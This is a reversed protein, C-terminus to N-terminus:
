YTRFTSVALTQPPPHASGQGCILLEAASRVQEWLGLGAPADLVAGDLVACSSVSTPLIERKKRCVTGGCAKDASHTSSSATSLSGHKDGGLDCHQDGGLDCVAAGCAADAGSHRVESQLAQQEAVGALKDEAKRLQERLGSLEEWLSEADLSVGEQTLPLPSQSAVSLERTVEDALSAQEFLSARAQKTQLAPARVTSARRMMAASQRQLQQEINLSQTHLEERADLLQQKASSHEAAAAQLREKYEYLEQKLRRAEAESDIYATKLEDLRHQFEAELEDRTSDVADQWTKQHSLDTNEAEVMSQRRSAILTKRQVSITASPGMTSQPSVLDGAMKEELADELYACRKQLREHEAELELRDKMFVDWVSTRQRRAKVRVRTPMPVEDVDSSSSLLAPSAVASPPQARSAM